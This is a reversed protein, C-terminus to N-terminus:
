ASAEELLIPVRIGRRADVLGRDTLGLDPLTSLVTQAMTFFPHELECGLTRAVEQAFEIQSVVSEFPETAMIGGIPLSVEAQITRDAVVM